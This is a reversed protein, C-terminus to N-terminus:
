ITFGFTIDFVSLAQAIVWALPEHYLGRCIWISNFNPFIPKQPSPFVPTGLSFGRPALFLVLLLSLGCSVPGPFQVWSVNTPPSHMLAMGAGKTEIFATCHFSEFIGRM